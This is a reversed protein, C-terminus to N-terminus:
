FGSEYSSEASQSKTFPKAAIQYGRLNCFYINEVQGNKQVSPPAKALRNKLRLGLHVPPPRNM